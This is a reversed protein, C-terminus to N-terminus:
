STMFGLPVTTVGDALILRKDYVMRYHKDRPGTYLAGLGKRLIANPERVTCGDGGSAMAKLTDFNILKSARYNLSFGRVKCVANGAALKLAYNKPGLGVYETIVDDPVEDKLGGLFDGLPPSYMGERHLFIASDTDVYYLRDGLKEAMEYLRLRANSTTYAALVVNTGPSGSDFEDRKNWLLSVTSDNVHHVDHVDLTMDSMLRIYEKADNVYSMQMKNSRQAFKGWHSNAMLKALSRLGENRSINEPNLRVGEHKEYEEVYRAREEETTCSAPYGSAEQKLTVWKDIFSSWIGGEKTEPDYQSTSEYHWAEYRELIVYGLDCAKKLEGSVWTGVLSRDEVSEHTCPEGPGSAACAGCLPFLLKGRARYPLLPLYLDKPPLVKCKVLGEVRDPIDDGTYIQPHGLPYLCYKNVWPYLSTFDVYKLSEGPGPKSYLRFSECRGGYFAERPRLPEYQKCAQHLQKLMPCMNSRFVCEWEEVVDYGKGRLSSTFAVTNDYVDRHSVGKLPHLASRNPYCRECSHWFCGHFFYVTGDEGLGDVYRGEIRQEGVNGCHSIRQGSVRSQHTLWCTAISSGQGKFYGEPPILGIEGEKLYHTRYVRNCAGAITFSRTFPELGTHQVFLTRFSGCCRQLIDVDSICYKLLEERMNFDRDGQTAYWALFEARTSSSMDDPGYYEVDPIPGVYGQNVPVNFLHPFFGKTLECVGFAKPLRSLAMPFYNLSDIFRVGQAELSLIKHGNLVVSPKVGVGHVYDLLFHSDYGSANHAICVAGARSGDLVYEGFQQVARVGEFVARERGCSCDVGSDEIPLHMCQTCVRHCVCLNPKHSGDELVMSEFDYFIYPRTKFEDERVELPAIFCQHDPPQVTQCRKCLAFGCKHERGRMCIKGCEGCRKRQECFTLHRDYCESTPYNINCVTCYKTTASAVCQGPAHCYYCTLKCVHKARSLSKGYCHPCVYGMGFFKPLSTVVHYHEEALYVCVEKSGEVKNGYYVISNFHDRSLVVLSYGPSMVRRQILDWERSGCMTGAVLGARRMIVQAFTTQLKLSRRLKERSPHHRAYCMGVGVARAFCLRDDVQPMQIICRKSRLFDMLRTSVRNLSMGRGGAPLPAHVFTVHMPNGFLWTKQSQLVKEVSIMLREASMHSPPMFPLWVEHHLARTSISLRVRDHDPYRAGTDPNVLLEELM